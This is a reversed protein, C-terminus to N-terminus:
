GIVQSTSVVFVSLMILILLPVSNAFMNTSPKDDHLCGTVDNTDDEPKIEFCQFEMFGEAYVCCPLHIQMRVSWM